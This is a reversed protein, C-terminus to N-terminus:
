SAYAPGFSITSCSRTRSATPSNWGFALLFPNGVRPSHSFRGVPANNAPIAQMSSVAATTDPDAM